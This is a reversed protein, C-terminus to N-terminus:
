NRRNGGFIRPRMAPQPQQVPASTAGAKVSAADRAGADAAPAPQAAQGGPAPRADGGPNRVVKWGDYLKGKFNEDMVERNPSQETLTLVFDKSSKGDPSLLFIRTPLLYLKRDLQVWAKTFSERDIEEKPIIRLVEFKEDESVLDMHYRKRAAAAQFNFLFPLPGEELARQQVDKELPYIFIQKTDSRYQWVESGTCIIREYPVAQQTKGKTKPDVVTVVKKFDLWALNPSKLLARGEYHEDDGWAPSKDTRTMKVDLTKLRSSNTEWLTLLKPLKEPDPPAPQVPAQNPVQGEPPAPNAPNQGPPGQAWARPAVVAALAVVLVPLFRVNRRM